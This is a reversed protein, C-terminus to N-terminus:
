RSSQSSTCAYLHSLPSDTGYNRQRACRKNRRTRRRLRADHPGLRLRAQRAQDRPQEGEPQRRGDDGDRRERGVRLHRGAEGRHVVPPGLEVEDDDNGDEEEDREEDEDDEVDVDGAPVYTPTAVHDNTSTRAFSGHSWM